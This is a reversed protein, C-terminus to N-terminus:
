DSHGTEGSCREIHNEKFGNERPDDEDDPMCDDSM